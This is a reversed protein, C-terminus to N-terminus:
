KQLLLASIQWRRVKAGPAPYEARCEHWLNSDLEHHFIELRDGAVLSCEHAGPEAPVRGIGVQEINVAGQEIAAVGDVVKGKLVRHALHQANFGANFANWHM